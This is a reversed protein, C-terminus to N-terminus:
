NKNKIYNIFGRCVLPDMGYLVLILIVLESTCNQVTTSIQYNYIFTILSFTNITLYKSNPM